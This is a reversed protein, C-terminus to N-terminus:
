FLNVLTPPQTIKFWLHLSKIASQHLVTTLRSMLNEQLESATM